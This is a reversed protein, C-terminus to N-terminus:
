ARAARRAEHLDDLRRGPRRAAAIAHDLAGHGDGPGCTAGRGPGRDPQPDRQDWAAPGLCCDELDIWVVRGDRRRRPTRRSRTATSRSAIPRRRSCGDVPCRPPPAPRRCRRRRDARAPARHRHGSRSGDDGSRAAASRRRGPADGCPPRRARGPGRAPRPGRGPCPRRVGLGDDGVRGARAPRSAHCREAARRGCRRGRPGDGAPGGPRAMAAPRPPDPGHVHGRPHRDSRTRPPRPPQQRGEPGAAADVRVGHERAVAVAADLPGVRGHADTTTRM